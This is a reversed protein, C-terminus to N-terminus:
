HNSAALAEDIAKKIGDLSYSSIPLRKGNIFYTPTGVIDVGHIEGERLDRRVGAAFQREDLARNFRPGDLGAEIAYKKLSPVDLANQNKFLLNYYEWFRGQAHAALSAEAAMRAKVHMSLPYQRFVYRVKNGYSQLAQEVIPHMQGCAYCQFDGFEVVTVPASASGRAPSVSMGIDQVPREPPAILIRISADARLRENLANELQAQQQKKLQSVIKTRASPLDTFQWSYTQFYQKIEEETPEHTKDAIEARTIDEPKLSKRKAEGNLLLASIAKQLAAEETEYTQRRSEFIRPKLRENLSALTVKHQGVTALVTQPKLKPENIDVTKVLRVKDQRATTWDALLKKEQEDRLQGQIGDRVLWLEYDGYRQRNNKYEADIQENTPATIRSAIDVDYLQDATLKRHSAELELLRSTIEATLVTQRVQALKADLEVVAQRAQEDLDNITLEQNNVVAIAPRPTQTQTLAKEVGNSALFLLPLLIAALRIYKM